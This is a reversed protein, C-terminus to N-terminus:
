LELQEDKWECTLYQLFSASSVVEPGMSQILEVIGADVKSVTPIECQPSYEMAVKKAEKLVMRLADHLQKWAAYTRQKGPLHSVVHTEVLHVVSVPEGKQPIWYFLRRTLHTEIPISLFDVAISNSRRFDYLLWGDIGKEQLLKQVKEIRM